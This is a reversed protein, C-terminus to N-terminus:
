YYYVFSEFVEMDMKEEGKEGLDPLSFQLFNSMVSDSFKSLCIQVHSLIRKDWHWPCIQM